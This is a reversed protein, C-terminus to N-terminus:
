IHEEDEVDYERGCAPCPVRSDSIRLEDIRHGEPCVGYFALKPPSEGPRLARFGTKQVRTIRTPREDIIRIMQEHLPTVVANQGLLRVLGDYRRSEVAYWQGRQLGSTNPPGAKLQAWEAM